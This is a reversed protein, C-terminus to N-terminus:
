RPLLPPAAPAPLAPSAVGKAVAADNYAKWAVKEARVAKQLEIVADLWPPCGATEASAEPTAHPTTVPGMCGLGWAFKLHDKDYHVPKWETVPAEPKGELKDLLPLVWTARWVHLRRDIFATVEKECTPLPDNPDYHIHGFEAKEFMLHARLTGADNRINEDAENAELARREDEELKSGDLRGQQYADEVMAATRRTDSPRQKEEKERAYYCGKCECTCGDVGDCVHRSRCHHAGDDQVVQEAQPAQTESPSLSKWVRGDAKWIFLAGTGKERLSRSWSTGSEVSVIEADFGKHRVFHAVDEIDRAEGSYTPRMHGIFESQAVPSASEQPTKWSVNYKSLFDAAAAEPTGVVPAATKEEAGGWRKSEATLYKMAFCVDEAHCERVGGALEDYARRAAKLEEKALRASECAQAAKIEASQCARQLDLGWRTLRNVENTVIRVARAINAAHGVDERDKIPFAEFLVGVATEILGGPVENENALMDALQGARSSIEVAIERVTKM